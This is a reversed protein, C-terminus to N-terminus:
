IQGLDFKLMICRMSFYNFRILITPIFHDLKNESLLNSFYTQFSKMGIQHYIYLDPTIKCDSLFLQYWKDARRQRVVSHHTQSQRQGSVGLPRQRRPGSGPRHTQGALLSGSHFMLHWTPMTVCMWEGAPFLEATPEEGKVEVFISHRISGLHNNAMCVYEGVDEESINVIRLTKNYNEFRVKQVPLDGGKKFWKITPTPSSPLLSYSCVIFPRYMM